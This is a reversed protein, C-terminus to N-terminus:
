HPGQPRRPTHRLLCERVAALKGGASAGAEQKLGLDMWRELLTEHVKDKAENTDIEDLDGAQDGYVIMMARLIESIIRLDRSDLERLEENKRLEDFVDDCFAELEGASRPM